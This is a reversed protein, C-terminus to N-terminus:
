SSEKEKSQKIMRKTENIRKTILISRPCVRTCQFHNQCGWAGEETDVIALRQETARDRSDALFRFAQALAAPGLFDPQEVPIPCASYCSACLICSTADDFAMRERPSQLREKGAVPEDNILYPKIARYKEFFEQQDVILDRQVPLHRLPEVTVTDGDHAAIDKILTKCALGDVGNIRMGDSGCVGHACSKRFGLSGDQFRKVQMLADLLRDTPKVDVQYQQFYSEEDTDPNYRQINLTINM